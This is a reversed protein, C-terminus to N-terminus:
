ESQSVDIVKTVKKDGTTFCTIDHTLELKEVDTDVDADEYWSICEKVRTSSLMFSPEKSLYCQIPATVKCVYSVKYTSKEESTEMPEIAVDSLSINLSVGTESELFWYDDNETVIGMNYRFQQDILSQQAVLKENDYFIEVKGRAGLARVKNGLAVSFDIPITQLLVAQKSVPEQKLKAFTFQHSPKFHPEDGSFEMPQNGTLVKGDRKMMWHLRYLNKGKTVKVKGHIGESEAIIWTDLMPVGVFFSYESNGEIGASSLMLNVSIEGGSIMARVKTDTVPFVTESAIVSGLMILSIITTKVGALM